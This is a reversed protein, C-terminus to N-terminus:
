QLQTSLHTAGLNNSSRLYYNYRYSFSDLFNPDLSRSAPSTPVPALTRATTSVRTTITVAPTVHAHAVIIPCM